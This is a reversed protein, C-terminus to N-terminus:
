PGKRPARVEVDSARKLDIGDKTLEFVVQRFRVRRPWGEAFVRARGLLAVERTGAEYRLRDAEVTAARTGLSEVKVGREGVLRRPEWGGKARALELRVRRAHARLSLGKEDFAELRAGDPVTLMAGRLRAPGALEVHWRVFRGLRPDPEGRQTYDVVAAGLTDAAQIADGKWVLEFGPAAVAVDDGQRLRAPEGRLVARGTEGDYEFGRGEVRQGDPGEARLAGSAEVRAPRGAEDLRGRAEDCRITWAAADEGEGLPARVAVDGRAEFEGPDRYVIRRGAVRRGGPLEVRAPAGEIRAEENEYVLADGRVRAGGDALVVSGRAAFSVLRGSELDVRLRDGELRARDEIAAVVRGSAEFTTSEGDARVHLPGGATLDLTGRAADGLPGLRGDAVYRVRKEGRLWLQFGTEDRGEFLLAEAVVSGEPVRAEAVDLAELRGERGVYTVTRAEFRAPGTRDRAAVGGDFRAEEIEIRGEEGTRFLLDARGATVDVVREGPGFAALPGRRVARVPGECFVRDTGEIRLRPVRIEDVGLGVEPAVTARVDGTLEADRLVWGDATRELRADLRACTVTGLPHELRADERLAVDLAAGDDLERVRARGSCALRVRRGGLEATAAVDRELRATRLDLDAFLGHGRLELAREPMRLTVADGTALTARDLDVRVTDSSALTRGATDRVVVGGGLTAIRPRGDKPHLLAQPDGAVHPAHLTLRLQPRGDRPPDFVAGALEELRPRGDHRALRGLRLYARVYDQEYIRLEFDRLRHVLGTFPSAGLEDALDGGRLAPEADLPEPARAALDAPRHTERGVVWLAAGLALLCALFVLLARV